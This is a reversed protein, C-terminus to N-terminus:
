RSEKNTSKRYKYGTGKPHKKIMELAQEKLKNNEATEYKSALPNRKLKKNTKGKRALNRATVSYQDSGDTRNKGKSKGM